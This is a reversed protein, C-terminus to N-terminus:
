TMFLDDIDPLSLADKQLEAPKGFEPDDPLWQKDDIGVPAEFTVLDGFRIPPPTDAFLDAKPRLYDAWFLVCSLVARNGELQKIGKLRDEHFRDLEYGDSTFRYTPTMELSWQGDLLRFQSRFAMHRAMRVHPWGTSHTLVALHRHDQEPAQDV